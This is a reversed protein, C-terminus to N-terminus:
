KAAADPALESQGSSVTAASTPASPLPAHAKKPLRARKLAYGGVEYIAQLPFGDDFKEIWTDGAIRPVAGRESIWDDEGVIMAPMGPQEVRHCSASFALRLQQSWNELTDIQDILFTRKLQQVHFYTPTMGPKIKILAPDGSEAYAAVDMDEALAPDRTLKGTLVVKVIPALPNM